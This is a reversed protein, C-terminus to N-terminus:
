IIQPDSGDWAGTERAKGYIGGVAAGALGGQLARIATSSIPKQKGDEGYEPFFFGSAAGLAGGMAGGAYAHSLPSTSPGGAMGENFGLSALGTVGGGLIAGQLGRTLAARIPGVRKGSSDTAGFALGQVAGLGGGVAAGLGAAPAADALAQGVSASKFANNLAMYNDVDSRMDSRAMLNAPASYLLGTGTLDTALGVGKSLSRDPNLGLMRALAEERGVTHGGASIAWPSGPRVWPRVTDAKGYAEHIAKEERTRKLVSRIAGGILGVYGGIGAGAAAGAVAGGTMGGSEGSAHGKIAGAGGGILAGAGAGGLAALLSRKITSRLPKKIDDSPEMGISKGMVEARGARLAAVNPLFYNSISGGAPGMDVDPKEKEPLHMGSNPIMKGVSRMPIVYNVEARKFDLYTLQSM